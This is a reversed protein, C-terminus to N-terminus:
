RRYRVKGIPMPIRNRLVWIVALEVMRDTDGERRALLSEVVAAADRDEDAELRNGTRVYELFTRAMTKYDADWNAGGNGVIEQSIRGSIRIVEGQVTRAAGSSPVMRQWLESHQQQWTASSVTIPSTEDHMVRRPIPPVGFLAYLADLGDSVADIFNPNFGERHFEFRKGIESVFGVTAPSPQAGAGLLAYALPVMKEISINDCTQLALDLPTLGSQNQAGVQAGSQILLRTSAASHFRAASHLPTNGTYDRKELDSGLEILIAINGKHSGARAHLPTRQYTDAAELDAGNAVLWRALDDPCEDFALATEKSYGGRANVDCTTFVDKLSALDGNKLLEVFDKPLLKKKPKAM